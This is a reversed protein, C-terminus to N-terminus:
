AVIGTVWDADLRYCRVGNMSEQQSKGFEGTKGLRLM